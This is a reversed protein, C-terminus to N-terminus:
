TDERTPIPWTQEGIRLGVTGDLEVLWPELQYVAARRFRARHREGPQAGAQSRKVLTYLVGAANQWLATPDLSERTADSLCLHPIGEVNDVALVSYPADELYVRVRQPGNVIWYDGELTRMLQRHLFRQLKPHKIAEGHYLWTGDKTLALVGDVVFREPIQTASEPGKPHYPPIAPKTDPERTM